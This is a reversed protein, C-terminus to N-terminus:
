AAGCAQETNRGEVPDGWVRPDDNFADDTGENRVRQLEASWVSGEGTWVLDPQRTDSVTLLADTPLGAEGDACKRPQTLIGDTTGAFEDKIQRAALEALKENQTM